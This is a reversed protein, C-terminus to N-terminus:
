GNLYAIIAMGFVWAGVTIEIAALVLAANM